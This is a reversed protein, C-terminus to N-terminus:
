LLPAGFTKMLMAGLLIGFLFLVVEAVIVQADHKEREARIIELEQKLFAIEQNKRDVIYENRM